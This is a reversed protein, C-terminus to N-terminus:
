IQIKMVSKGWLYALAYILLAASMTLRGVVTQYCTSLFDPSTLNVYGIILIPVLSMIKQELIKGSIDAEIQQGTEAKEQIDSVTNRIILILDGGSRKATQFVEAFNRIDDIHCRSSMDMLISEIPLSNAVQSNIYLFERIIFSDSPYIKGLEPLAERFANEAAYGAQLSAGVLQMGTMFERLMELKRKELLTKKRQKLYFPHGPLFLVSVPLSHFFLWSILLDLALYALINMALERHTFEYDGYDPPQRWQRSSEKIKRKVPKKIRPNRTM